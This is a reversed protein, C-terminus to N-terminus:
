IRLNALTGLGPIGSNELGAPVGRSIASEILGEQGGDGSEQQERNLAIQLIEAYDLFDPMTMNDTYGLPISRSFKILEVEIEVIQLALKGVARM